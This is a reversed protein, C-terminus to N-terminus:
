SPTGHISHSLNVVVPMASIDKDKSGSADTLQLHEERIQELKQLNTPSTITMMVIPRNEYTKGKVEMKVRDSHRELAEMYKLVDNWDTYQEGLEYGLIDKPQPIDSRLSHTINISEGNAHLKEPIFYSIDYELKQQIPTYTSVPQASAQCVSLTILIALIKKAPSKLINKM